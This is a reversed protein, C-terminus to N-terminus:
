EGQVVLPRTDVALEASGARFPAFWQVEDFDVMEPRARQRMAPFAVVWIWKERLRTKVTKIKNVARHHREPAEEVCRWSAGDNLAARRFDLSYAWWPKWPKQRAAIETWPRKAKEYKAGQWKQDHHMPKTTPASTKRKASKEAAM